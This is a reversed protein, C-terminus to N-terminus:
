VYLTCNMQGRYFYRSKTEVILKGNETIKITVGEQIDPSTLPLFVIGKYELFEGDSVQVKKVIQSPEYRCAQEADSGPANALWTGNTYMSNGPQPTITITHPYQRVM